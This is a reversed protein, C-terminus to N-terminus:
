YPSQHRQLSEECMRMISQYSFDFGTELLKDFRGGKTALVVQHRKGVLARGLRTESLTRGYYPSTDFFNIGGDIAAHVSRIAERHDLEGYENGLPACGFGMQSVQLGTKGLTNYIM